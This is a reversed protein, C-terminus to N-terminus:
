KRLPQLIPLKNPILCSISDTFKSQYRGNIVTAVRFEYRVVGTKVHYVSHVIEGGTYIEHYPTILVLGDYVLCFCFYFYFVSFVRLIMSVALSALM